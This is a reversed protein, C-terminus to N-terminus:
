QIYYCLLEMCYGVGVGCWVVGCWVCLVLLLGCCTGVTTKMLQDKQRILHSRFDSIMAVRGEAQM